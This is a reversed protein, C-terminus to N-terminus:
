SSSEDARRLWWVGSEPHDAENSVEVAPAIDFRLHLGDDDVRAETVHATVLLELQALANILPSLEVEGIRFATDIWLTREVRDRTADAFTIFLSAQRRGVALVDSGVLDQVNEASSVPPHHCVWNLPRSPPGSVAM